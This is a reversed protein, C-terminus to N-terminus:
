WLVNKPDPVDGRQDPICVESKGDHFFIAIMGTSNEIHMCFQCDRVARSIDLMDQVGNEWCVPEKSEFILEEGQQGEWEIFPAYFIDDVGKKKLANEVQWIADFTFSEGCNYHVFLSYKTSGATIM